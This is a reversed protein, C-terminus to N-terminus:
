IIINFDRLGYFWHLARSHLYVSAFAMYISNLFGFLLSIIIKGERLQKIEGNKKM